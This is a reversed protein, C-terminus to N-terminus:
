FYACFHWSKCTIKLGSIEDRLNVLYISIICLFSHFNYHFKSQDLSKIFLYYFILLHLNLGDGNVDLREFLERLDIKNFWSNLMKTSSSASIEQPRFLLYERWEKWDISNSGDKTNKFNVIIINKKYTCKILQFWPESIKIIYSYM